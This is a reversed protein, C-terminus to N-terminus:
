WAGPRSGERVGADLSAGGGRHADIATQVERPVNAGATEHEVEHESM